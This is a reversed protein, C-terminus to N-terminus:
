NKDSDKKNRLQNTYLSIHSSFAGTNYSSRSEALMASGTQPLEPDFEAIKENQEYEQIIDYMPWVYWQKGQHNVILYTATPTTIIKGSKNMALVGGSLAKVFCIKRLLAYAEDNKTKGRAYTRLLNNYHQQALLSLLNGKFITIKSINAYNKVSM